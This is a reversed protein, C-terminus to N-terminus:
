STALRRATRTREYWRSMLEIALWSLIACVLLANFANQVKERFERIRQQVIENARNAVIEDFRTKDM